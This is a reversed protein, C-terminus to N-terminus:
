GRGDRLLHYLEDLSQSMVKTHALVPMFNTDGDWRPVVHLHLHGPLGAGASRGLNLGLNFAHPRLTRRLRRVLRQSLTLLEAWEAPRLRDLEGIHRHPAIMLHGNNYPYLNLLAFAYRGRAIVRHAQDEHNAQALCFICRRPPKKATIFGSRWPAWLRPLSVAQRRRPM